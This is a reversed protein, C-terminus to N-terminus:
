RRQMRTPRISCPNQRPMLASATATTPGVRKRSREGQRPPIGPRSRGRSPGTHEAVPSSALSSPPCSRSSRHVPKAPPRHEPRRRQRTCLPRCNEIFNKDKLCQLSKPPPHNIGAAHRQNQRDRCSPRAILHGFLDWNLNGPPM